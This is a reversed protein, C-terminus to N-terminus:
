APWPVFKRSNPNWAVIGGTEIDYIWGHIALSKERLGKRVSPHTKLHRIQVVINQRILEELEEDDPLARSVARRVPMGYRLWRRTAPLHGLKEPYLLAKMAGCDSHGCLIIHGVGLVAVSYEISASVGVSEGSYVPVINGPNREVFLIGPDTNTIMNPDLRSDACTLFLATPKQKGALQRFLKRQRPFVKKQFHRVGAAMADISSM